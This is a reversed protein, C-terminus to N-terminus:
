EASRSTSTCTNLSTWRSRRKWKSKAVDWARRLRRDMPQLAICKEPWKPSCRRSGMGSPRWRAKKWVEMVEGIWLALVFKMAAM